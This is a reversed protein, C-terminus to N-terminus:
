TDGQHSIKKLNGIRHGTVHYPFKVSGVALAPPKVVCQILM